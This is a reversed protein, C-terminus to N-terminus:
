GNKTKRRKFKDLKERFNKAAAAIDGEQIIGRILSIHKAGKQLLGDINLLTIGGIFVVPKSSIKLIKDVHEIGAYEDKIETRFVPGFAIYDFDKEHVEKFQEISHTSIGIIKKRGMIQRAVDLSFLKIDEQGLHVGDADVEKALMPDDNVIFIVKNNKCLGALKKGLAVLENTAKKKERMQIVDVGGKIAHKAIEVASRGKGYEESIVLYLSYDKIKKM